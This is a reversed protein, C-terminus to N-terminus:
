DKFTIYFVSGDGPISEMHISAGYNELQMKTMYLGFGKAEPHRHFTRQPMFLAEGHKELDLGMGNDSISLVISDERKESRIRIDPPRGPDSYKLANSILNLFLSELYHPTYFVQEADSFDYTVVANKSQIESDLGRLVKLLADEFFISDVEERRDLTSNQIVDLLDSCNSNLTHIVQPLKSVLDKQERPDDSDQIFKILLTMNALPARLNHTMIHYLQVLRQNQAALKDRKNLLRVKAEELHRTREAVQRELDTRFDNLLILARKKLRVERWAVLVLIFLLFLGIILVFLTRRQATLLAANAENAAALQTVEMDHLRSQFADELAQLKREKERFEYETLIEHVDDYKALAAEFQDNERLIDFHTLETLYIYRPIKCVNGIRRASDLYQFALDTDGRRNYLKAQKTYVLPLECDMKRERYIRAARRYNASADNLEGHTFAVYGSILYNLAHGAKRISTDPSLQLSAQANIDARAFDQMDFYCEAMQSRVASRYPASEGGEVTLLSMAQQFAELAARPRGGARLARGYYYYGFFRELDTLDPQDMYEVVARHASDYQVRYILRDLQKDLSDVKESQAFTSLSILMM